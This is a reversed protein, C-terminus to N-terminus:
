LVIEKGLCFSYIIKQKVKIGLNNEFAKAYVELQPLYRDILQQPNKVRDTKYDVVVLGDEEEFICDASGQILLTEKEFVDPLAPDIERAPLATLFRQERMIKKANNMRVFLDSQYFELIKSRDLEKGQLDTLYGQTCLLTIEDELNTRGHIHDAYQMFTHLATGKAAANLKDGRLFAPQLAFVEEKDATHTLGSATRKKAEGRLLLYPSQYDLRRTIEELLADGNERTIKPTGKSTECMVEIDKGRFIEVSFGEDKTSNYEVSVNEQHAGFDRYAPHMMVCQLLLPAFRNCEAVRHSAIKDTEDALIIEERVNEIEKNLNKFCSLVFCNDIARTMAVYYIRLEEAVMESHKKDKIAESVFNSQTELTDEVSMKLAVGLESDTIVSEKLDMENYQGNCNAIFCVPYQLGKSDHITTFKVVDNGESRPAKVSKSESVRDIYRLFGDLRECGNRRCDAAIDLLYQLNARRQPGNEMAECVSLIGTTDYVKNILEDVPATISFRRFNKINTLFNQCKANHEAEFILASYFSGQKQAVRVQALENDTFGFMPSTMASLLAVDDLPNDIVKLLSVTQMIEQQGFFDTKTMNTCPIGRRKFVTMMEPIHTGNRQLVVFDSYTANRLEENKTICKESMMKEIIDCIKEAEIESPTLDSDCADAFIFKVDPIDRDPFKIKSELQHGDLYDIGGMETSFLKSFVYNAGNCVGNRSRFNGSLVVKSPLPSGDYERSSSLLNIFNGPNSDRFGYICQKVDGVVFRKKGCDSIAYFLKDQLDNVDQYEDVLVQDFDESLKTAIPTLKGEDNFLLSLALYEVEAFDYRNLRDMERRIAAGYDATMKFLFVVTDCLTKVQNKCEEATTKYNSEIFKQLQKIYKQCRDSVDKVLPDRTVTRCFGTEMQAYSYVGDWDSNKALNLVNQAVSMWNKLVAIRKEAKEMDSESLANLQLVANETKKFTELSFTVTKELIRRGWVSKSVEEFESYMKVTDEMYKKPFPLTRMSDYVKNITNKLKYLNGLPDIVGFLAETESRYEKAYKEMIEEFAKNKIDFIEAENLYQIEPSLGLDAYNESVLRKCYADITMISAQPLLLLQNLINTNNPNEKYEDNLRQAIRQRMEAAASKTFTVILLRTIDTKGEKVVLRVVRDALTATKGSGAAASVILACNADIAKQQQPTPSHKMM